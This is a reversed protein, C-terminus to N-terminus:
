IKLYDVLDKPDGQSVVEISQIESVRIYVPLNKVNRFDKLDLCIRLSPVLLSKNFAEFLRNTDFESLILDRKRGSMYIEILSYNGVM